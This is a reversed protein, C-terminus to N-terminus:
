MVYQVLTCSIPNTGLEFELLEKEHKNNKVLRKIVKCFEMINDDKKLWYILANLVRQNALAPNTTAVVENFFGEKVEICADLLGVTLIHDDSFSQWLINYYKRL